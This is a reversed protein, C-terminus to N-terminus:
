GQRGSLRRVVAVALGHASSSPVLKLMKSSIESYPVILDGLRTAIELLDRWIRDDHKAKDHLSHQIIRM